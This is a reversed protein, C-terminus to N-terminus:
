PNTVFTIGALGAASITLTQTVATGFTWTTSAAIGSSNTTILTSTLTGNTGPLSGTQAFTVDVGSQSVNNGFVDTLRVGVVVNTLIGRSSPVTTSFAVLRNAASPVMTATFTVGAVGTVTAVVSATGAVTPLTWSGLTAIGNANTTAIDGIITGSNANGLTFTVTVGPIPNGQSDTVRVSPTSPAAQGSAVVFSGLSLTSQATLTSPAGATASATFLVDPLNMVRAVLTQTGTAVGLTWSGITAVGTSSTIATAGVVTGAGSAVSFTVTVGAIPNGRADRVIVSPAIPVATGVTATQIAGSAAAMSVPVGAVATATFNVPAVTVGATVVSARLINEGVEDGLTWAGVTATGQANTTQRRSVATGGGSTVEFLIDLGAIPNNSADTVRVSPDIPLTRGVTATQSNGSVIGMSTAASPRAAATFLTSLTGATATLTYNQASVGLQWGDPAAIGSADTSKTGNVVTSGTSAAFVVSVGAVPNGAADTVRVSPVPTVLGGITGSVSANGVAAIAAATGATGSATFTVPNGTAGSFLGTASLRNVGVAPGLTWGGVTAIGSANTVAGANTVTGNGAVVSFVVSVGPVANTFRDRVLVAPATGVATGVAASQNDGASFTITAPAASRATAVFSVSSTLGAAAATVRQTLLREGLRWQTSAVGSFDTTDLQASLVGGGDAVTFTIVTGAVPSGGADTVKVTLPQAILEGVTGSLAADGIPAILSPQPPATDSCASLAASLALVTLNRLRSATM